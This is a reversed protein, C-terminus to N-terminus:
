WDLDGKGSNVYGVMQLCDSVLLVKSLNLDRAWSIALILAATEAGVDSSILGFDARLSKIIGPIWSSSWIKTSNGDNIKYVINAKLFKLSNIIGKWIWSSNAAAKDIELLNQNPYYKDKLFKSILQNPNKLLRWGLKAILVRNVAFSNRIGLGGNLKSKGIDGWSRFYVAKRPNKKSWWFTRQISDIKSTIKKPFPFYSMHYVVLSSLVHKTVVNRGAVNLVTRKTNGLRSYFKDIQFQFSKTKDRKVFLPTGLYKEFSSLFKIGLTKTLLKIHKHHLKSSTFFGSKELNIAQGFTKAFTNIIKMLHRAYTLSAKSFLM